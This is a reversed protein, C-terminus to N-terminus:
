TEATEGGCVHYVLVLKEKVRCELISTKQEKTTIDIGLKLRMRGQVDAEMRKKVESSTAAYTVLVANRRIAAKDRVGIKM